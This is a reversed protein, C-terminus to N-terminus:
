AMHDCIRRERMPIDMNGRLSLRLSLKNYDIVIDIYYITASVYYTRITTFYIIIAILIICM